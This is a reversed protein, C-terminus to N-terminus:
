MAIALMSATKSTVGAGPAGGTSPRYVLPSITYAARKGRVLPLLASIQPHKASPRLRELARDLGSRLLRLHQNEFTALISKTTTRCFCVYTGM